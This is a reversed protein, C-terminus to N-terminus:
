EDNKLSNIIKRIQKQEEKEKQLINSLADQDLYSNISERVIEMMITPNLADVEWSVKGFKRVYEKARPDTIKAPNHPPNYKKIQEMTLGVPVIEFLEKEKIYMALQGAEFTKLYIYNLDNTEIFVGQDEFSDKLIKYLINM